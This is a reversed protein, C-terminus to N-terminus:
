YCIVFLFNENDGNTSPVAFPIACEIYQVVLNNVPHNSIGMRTTAISKEQFLDLGGSGRNMTLLGLLDHSM